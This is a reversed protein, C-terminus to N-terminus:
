PNIREEIWENRRIWRRRFHIPKKLLLQDVYNITIKLLAFNDRMTKENNTSKNFNQCIYKGGPKPWGWISKSQDSLKDWHILKDNGMEIESKGGLRFQCESKPFFCCIEVNNNSELESYKESRKDTLIILQYTNTWGRLVVTRVRPTNDKSVTALQVFSSSHQDSETKQYYKIISLWPPM